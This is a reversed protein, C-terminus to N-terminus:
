AIRSLHFSNRFRSDKRTNRRYSRREATIFRHWAYVQQQIARGFRVGFEEILYGELNYDDDQIMEYSEKVVTDYKYADMEVRSFTLDQVTFDNMEGVQVAITATDDNVIKYMKEGKQTRDITAVEYIGSYDKLYAEISADV